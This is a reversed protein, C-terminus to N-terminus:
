AEWRAEWRAAWRAPWGWGMGQLPAVERVRNGRVAPASAAQTPTPPKRMRMMDQGDSLTASGSGAPANHPLAHPSAQGLGLTSAPLQPVPPPSCMGSSICTLPSDHHTGCNDQASPPLSPPLGLQGGVGVNNM